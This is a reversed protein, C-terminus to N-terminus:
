IGARGGAALSRSEMRKVNLGERSSTERNFGLQECALEQADAWPMLGTEVPPGIVTPRM